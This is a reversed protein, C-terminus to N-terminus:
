ETVGIAHWGILLGRLEEELQVLEDGLVLGLASLDLAWAHGIPEIRAIRAPRAVVADLRGGRSRTRVM